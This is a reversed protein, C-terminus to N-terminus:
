PFLKSCFADGPCVLNYGGPVQDTHAYVYAGKSPYYYTWFFCMEANASEGFSVAQGSTNKWSCSFQFGGGSPVKFPPDFYVTKPEAWSWAPVDYVAKPPAGDKEVTWVKVDTGFHHEHGTIGFFSADGIPVKDIPVYVPGLTKSAQAPVNIDPDGVFLFDAEAKVDGEPMVYFTSTASASIPAGTTNIYHMELRVMQSKQFGFAVGKPLALLDSKKQTIMLPTGKQPKLLDSFPQCAFPTAQEVTDATRYVILHHSAASLENKINGIHVAAPNGVARVVCQTAEKGAAVTIPDFKVTFANGMTNSSGTSTLSGTSGDASTSSGSTGGSGTSGFANVSSGCGVLVAAGALAAITALCRLSM